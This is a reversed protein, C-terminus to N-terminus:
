GRQGSLKAFLKLFKEIGGPVGEGFGVLKQRSNNKNNKIFFNTSTKTFKIKYFTIL